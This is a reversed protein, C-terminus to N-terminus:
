TYPGPKYDDIVSKVQIYGLYNEDFEVFDYNEKHAELAAKIYKLIRKKTGKGPAYEPEGDEYDIYVEFKYQFYSM